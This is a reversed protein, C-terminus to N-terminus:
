VADLHVERAVGAHDPTGQTHLESEHLAAPIGHEVAVQIEIQRLVIAEEEAHAPIARDLVQLELEDIGATGVHPPAVPPVERKGPLPFPERGALPLDRER